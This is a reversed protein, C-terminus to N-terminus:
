LRARRAQGPLVAATTTSSVCVDNERLFSQVWDNDRPLLAMYHAGNVYLLALSPLQDSERGIKATGQPRYEAMVAFEGGGDRRYVTIRRRLVASLALIEAATGWQGPQRMRQCYGCGDENGLPEVIMAVPLGDVVEKSPCGTLHGATM